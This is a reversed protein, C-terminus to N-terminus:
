SPAGAVARAWCQQWRGQELELCYVKHYSGGLALRAAAGHNGHVFPTHLEFNLVHYLQGSEISDGRCCIAHDGTVLGGLVANLTRLECAVGYGTKRCDLGALTALCRNVSADFFAGELSVDLSAFFGPLADRLQQGKPSLADFSNPDVRGHRFVFVRPSKVREHM